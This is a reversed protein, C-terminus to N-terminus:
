ASGCASAGTTSAALESKAGSAGADIQFRGFDVIIMFYVHGLPYGGVLSFQPTLAGYM